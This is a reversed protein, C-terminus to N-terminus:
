LILLGKSKKKKKMPTGQRLRHRALEEDRGGRNRMKCGTIVSEEKVPSVPMKRKKRSTFYCTKQPLWSPFTVRVRIVLSRGNKEKRGHRSAIRGELMVQNEKV